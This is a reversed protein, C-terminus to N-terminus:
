TKASIFHPQVKFVNSNILELLKLTLWLYLVYFFLSALMFCSLLISRFVLRTKRDYFPLESTLDEHWPKDWCWRLSSSSCHSGKLEHISVGFHMHPSLFFLKSLETFRQSGEHDPQWHLVSSLDLPALLSRPNVPLRHPLLWASDGTTEPERIRDTSM